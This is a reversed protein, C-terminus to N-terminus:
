DDPGHSSSFCVLSVANSLSIRPLFFTTLGVVKPVQRPFPMPRSCTTEPNAATQPLSTSREFNPVQRQSLPVPRSCATKLNAATRERTWLGAVKPVQRQPLPIDRSCATEYKVATQTLTGSLCAARGHGRTLSSISKRCRAAAATRITHTFSRQPSPRAACVVTLQLTNPPGPSQALSPVADQFRREDPSIKCSVHIMSVRSVLNFLESMWWLLLTYSRGNVKPKQKSQRSFNSRIKNTEASSEWPSLLTSLVTSREKKVSKMGTKLWM